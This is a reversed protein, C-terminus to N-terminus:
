LLSTSFILQKYEYKGGRNLYLEFTFVSSFIILTLHRSFYNVDDKGLGNLRQKQM